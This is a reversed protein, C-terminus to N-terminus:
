LYTLPNTVAVSRRQPPAGGEEEEFFFPFNGAGGQLPEAGAPIAWTQGRARDLAQRRRRRLALTAAAFGALALATVGAAM